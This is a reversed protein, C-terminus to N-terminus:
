ATMEEAVIISDEGMEEPMLLGGVIEPCLTRALEVGARYRLM